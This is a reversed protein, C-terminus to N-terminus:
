VSFTAKDDATHIETGVIGTCMCLQDRHSINLNTTYVEHLGTEVIGTVDANIPAYLVSMLGRCYLEIFLFSVIDLPPKGTCKWHRHLRYYM